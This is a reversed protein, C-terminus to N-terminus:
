LLYMYGQMSEDVKTSKIGYVNNEGQKMESLVIEYTKDFSHGKDPADIFKQLDTALNWNWSCDYADM